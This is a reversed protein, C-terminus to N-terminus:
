LEKRSINLLISHDRQPIPYKAIRNEPLPYDYDSIKIHKTEIM